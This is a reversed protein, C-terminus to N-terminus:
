AAKQGDGWDGVKVSGGSEKQIRQALKFSPLDGAVLQAIRGQTVGVRLAFESQSLAHKNLYDALKM